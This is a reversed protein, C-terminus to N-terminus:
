LKEEKLTKDVSDYVIKSRITEKKEALKDVRAVFERSARTGLTKTKTEKKKSMTFQKEM